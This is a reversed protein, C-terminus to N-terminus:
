AETTQQKPTFRQARASTLEPYIEKVWEEPARKLPTRLRFEKGALKGLLTEVAEQPTDGHGVLVEDPIIEIYPETSVYYRPLQFKESLSKSWVNVVLTLDHVGLFDELHTPPPKPPELAEPAIMWKVQM